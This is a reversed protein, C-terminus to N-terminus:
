LKAMRGAHEEQKTEMDRRWRLFQDELSQNTPNNAMVIPEQSSSLHALVVSEIPLSPDSSLRRLRARQRHSKKSPREWLRRWNNDRPNESDVSRRPMFRVAIVQLVFLPSVTTHWGARRHKLQNLLDPANKWDIRCAYIKVYMKRLTVERIESSPHQDM